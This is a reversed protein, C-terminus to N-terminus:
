DSTTTADDGFPNHPEHMILTAQCLHSWAAAAVLRRAPFQGHFNWEPDGATEALYREMLTALQYRESQRFLAMPQASLWACARDGETLMFKPSHDDAFSTWVVPLEQNGLEAIFQGENRPHTAYVGGIFVLPLLVLAAAAGAIIWRARM